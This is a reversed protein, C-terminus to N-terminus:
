IRKVSWPEGRRKDKKLQKEWRRDRMADLAELRQEIEWMRYVIRRGDEPDFDDFNDQLAGPAEKLEEPEEPVCAALHRDTLQGMRYRIPIIRVGNGNRGM